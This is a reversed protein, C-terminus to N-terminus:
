VHISQRTTGIFIFLFAIFSDTVKSPADYVPSSTVEGDVRYDGHQDLRDQKKNQKNISRRGM